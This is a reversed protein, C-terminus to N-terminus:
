FGDRIRVAQRFFHKLILNMINANAGIWNGQLMLDRNNLSLFAPYGLLSETTRKVTSQLDLIPVMIVSLAHKAMSAYGHSCESKKGFQLFVFIIQPQQRIVMHYRPGIARFYPIAYSLAAM